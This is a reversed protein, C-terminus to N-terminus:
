RLRHMSQLLALDHEIGRRALRLFLYAILPLALWFLREWLIGEATRVGLAGGFYLGGLYLASLLLVGFQALVVLKRQRSLQRYLFVLGVAGLALAAGLTRVLLLLWGPGALALLQGPVPALVLLGLAAAALLLYLSQVRQIM